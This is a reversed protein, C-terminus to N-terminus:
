KYPKMLDKSSKKVNEPDKAESVIDALKSMTEGASERANLNVSGDPNRPANRMDADTIGLDVTPTRTGSPAPNLTPALPTGAQPVRPGPAGGTQPLRPTSTGRKPDPIVDVPKAPDPIPATKNKFANVGSDWAARGGAIVDGLAGGITDGIGSATPNERRRIESNAADVAQQQRDYQVVKNQVNPAVQVRKADNATVAVKSDYPGESIVEAEVVIDSYKRMLERNESM